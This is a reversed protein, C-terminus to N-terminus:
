TIRVQILITRMTDLKVTVAWKNAKGKIRIQPFEKKDVVEPKNRLEEEKEFNDLIVKELEKLRHTYCQVDFHNELDVHVQGDLIGWKEDGFDAFIMEPNAMM